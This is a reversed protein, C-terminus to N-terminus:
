NILNIKYKQFFITIIEWLVILQHSLETFLQEEIKTLVHCVHRTLNRKDKQDRGEVREVCGICILPICVRDTIESRRAGETVGCM